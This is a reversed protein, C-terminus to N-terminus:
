LQYSRITEIDLDLIIEQSECFENYLCLSQDDIHHFLFGKEIIGLLNMEKILDKSIPVNIVKRETVLDLGSADTLFATNCNSCAPSLLWITFVLGIVFYRKM